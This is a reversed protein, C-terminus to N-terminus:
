SESPEPAPPIVISGSSSGGGSTGAPEPRSIGGGGGGTASPSTSGISGSTGSSAGGSGSVDWYGLDRLNRLSYVIPLIETGDYGYIGYAERYGFNEENEESLDLITSVILYEEKAAVIRSCPIEFLPEGSLLDYATTVDQYTTAFVYVTGDHTICELNRYIDTGFSMWKTEGDTIYLLDGLKTEQYGNGYDQIVFETNATEPNLSDIESGDPRMDFYPLKHYLRYVTVIAEEITCNAKPSFGTGDGLMIGLEQMAYIADVAWPSFTNEDPYPTIALVPEANPVGFDQFLGTDCYVAARYLVAAVEERTIEIGPSFQTQATGKLIGLNALAAINTNDTDSFPNDTQYPVLYDFKSIISYVLEGFEERNIHRTYDTVGSLKEPLLGSERFASVPTYAWESLTILGSSNTSTNTAYAAISCFLTLTTFFCLIRKM